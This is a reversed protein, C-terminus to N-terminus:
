FIQFVYGFATSYLSISSIHIQTVPSDFVMIRKM